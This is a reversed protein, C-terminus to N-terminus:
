LDAPDLPLTRGAKHDAMAEAALGDLFDIFEPTDFQLEWKEDGNLQDWEERTLTEKKKAARRAARRQWREEDLTPKPHKM